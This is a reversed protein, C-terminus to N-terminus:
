VSRVFLQGARRAGDALAQVSALIREEYARRVEAPMPQSSGPAPSGFDVRLNREPLRRM